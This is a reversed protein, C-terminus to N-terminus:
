RLPLNGVGRNMANLLDGNDQSLEWAFVGALGQDVAFRGKELVARPDDYGMWLRHKSHYLSWGGTVPDRQAQFGQRGRGQADLLRGAFERYGMAGEAGPYNGAKSAGTRPGSVGKFGRGYMAVGAVMKSKPVGAAEFTRVSHALSDDVGPASSHLTSHHGLQATWPGYYDYSMIFVLDLKPAARKFDIVKVIPETANVATTLLYPRGTEASLRDLGQRLDTMLDAYAAGDEPKGLAVGNASGNTGPHEWDIDIGDFAPHERLFRQTSAVFTARKAQDHALHFFPDSGGWGGVSAVVKVHPARQKYRAFAADFRRDVPGTALEFDPKGECAIRDKDLQGPGCLRLFAYLVHTLNQVPVQEILEAPEWNPVYVGVVKGSSREFPIPKAGFLPYGPANEAATSSTLQAAPPNGQAVNVLGLASWALLLGAVSKLRVSM